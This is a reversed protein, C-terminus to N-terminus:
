THNQAKNFDTTYNVVQTFFINRFFIQLLTTYEMEVLPFLKGEHSSTNKM